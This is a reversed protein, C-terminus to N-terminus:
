KGFEKESATKRMETLKHVRSKSGRTHEVVNDRHSHNKSATRRGGGDEDCSRMKCELGRAGDDVYDGELTGKLGATRREEMSSLSHPKSVLSGGGGMPWNIHAKLGASKREM